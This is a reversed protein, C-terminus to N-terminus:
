INGRNQKERVLRFGTVSYRQTPVDAARYASRVLHTQCHYSGGRRVKRTGTAPGTPDLTKHAAYATPEYWDQVWEWANGFMDHLGFGNAALKGVAQPVDGSNQISWAHQDIEDVEFPRLGNSGARAAYEWEAETPLRYRYNSDLQNLARIFAQTDHWTVSVVPLDRWDQRLWYSEPGPRTAMVALWQQQTIEYKGIEFANLQVRHAPQEDRIHRAQDPPIEFLVDDIDATGMVFNGAPITVFAIAPPSAQALATCCCMLSLALWQKVM